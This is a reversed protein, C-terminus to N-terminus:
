GLWVPAITLSRSRVAAVAPGGSVELMGAEEVLRYTKTAWTVRTTCTVSASTRSPTGSPGRTSVGASESSNPPPNSGPSNGIFWGLFASAIASPDSGTREVRIFGAVTIDVIGRLNCSLNISNSIRSWDTWVIDAASAQEVRLPQGGVVAWPFSSNPAASPTYVCLWAGYGDRYMVTEGTQPSSPFSNVVPVSPPPAPPDPPPMAGNGIKGLAVAQNGGTLVAVPENKPIPAVAKVEPIPTSTECSQGGIVLGSDTVEGKRLRVSTKELSRVRRELDRITQSNM